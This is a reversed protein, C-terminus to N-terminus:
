CMAVNLIITVCFVSIELRDYLLVLITKLEVETHM